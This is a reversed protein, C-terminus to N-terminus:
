AGVANVGLFYVLYENRNSASDVGPVYHLWFSKHWHFIGHCRRPDFCRGESKYRLVKVVTSGRDWYIYIYIFKYINYSRKTHVVKQVNLFDANKPVCWIQKNCVIRLLFLFQNKKRHLYIMLKAVYECKTGHIILTDLMNFIAHSLHICIHSLSFTFPDM